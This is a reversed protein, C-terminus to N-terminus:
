PDRTIGRARERIPDSLSDVDSDDRIVRPTLFIFLETETTRRGTRGFLVGIVPISSLFPIGGETMERQRDTLGGLVITQGDKVLLRTEVSRTSIIPANFQQEATAANIEQLVQLMVYGDASITPVISLKTGVDKYQIVQDRATNDTPLVRAVQVFPRQSGVNIEARENNAALLVPRSVITADGRAASARITAEISSPGIGMIKLAFDGLGAGTTTAQITTGDHGRISTKPLTLDVGIDFSRDKRLEAILVEIIVQLPRVDLERVAAEVLGFDGRSARVLLSNARADPVITVEGNLAATRGAVAAVAQPPAAGAPPIQNQQLERSLSSPSAGLEGLASSRGYLANVTAAVDTARAHRLRIVFLEPQGTSSRHENISLGIPRSPEKQQLRYVGAVSDAVLQVQQGELLGRLVRLVDSQPIPQPTELTVRSGGNVAGIVLPRDLYRGLAQAATRIEVDVLRISV